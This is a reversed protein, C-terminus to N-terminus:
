DRMLEGIQNEGHSCLCKWWFLQLLAHPHFCLEFPFHPWQLEAKRHQGNVGGAALHQGSLFAPHFWHHHESSDWPDTHLVQVCRQCRLSWSHCKKGLNISICSSRRMHLRCLGNTFEWSSFPRQKRAKQAFVVPAGPGDSFRKVAALFIGWTEIESLRLGLLMRWWATVVSQKDSLAWHEWATNVSLFSAM